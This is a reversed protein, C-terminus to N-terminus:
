IETLNGGAVLRAKHRLDQKVDFVIHYLIKQYGKPINEGSDIIIFKQYNKLQNLETKIAEKWEMRRIQIWPM